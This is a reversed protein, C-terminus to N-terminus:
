RDLADLGRRAFVLSAASLGAIAVLGGWTGQWTVGHLFGQRALRLINTVPNYRAVAHLWGRMVSLPAQASSVFMTLFLGLQMVAAGRMDRFRLALGLGWGTAITAVGFGALYLTLVGLLGGSLRAGIAFGVGLVATVVLITRLWAALLPGLILANRPAPAMRLRDFFGTEIDGILTFGLGMGSFASGMCVGLPMFWNISRDTPFGPLKTIAFFTGSFAISQFIPMVLAPFFASPLRVIRRLSRGSLGSSARLLTTNM